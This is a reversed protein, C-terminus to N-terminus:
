SHKLPLRLHKVARETDTRFRLADQRLSLLLERLSSGVPYLMTHGAASVNGAAKSATSALDLIRARVRPLAGHGQKVTWVALSLVVKEYLLWVGAVICALFLLVFFVGAFLLLAFFLEQIYFIRSAVVTVLLGCAAILLRKKANPSM